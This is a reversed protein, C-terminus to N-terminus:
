LKDASVISRGTTRGARRDNKQEGLAKRAARVQRNWTDFAPLTYDTLEGQDGGDDPFGNEKLWDYAERDELKKSAIREAYVFSSYAKRVAPQLSKHITEGDAPNFTNPPKGEGDAPQNNADATQAQGAEKTLSPKQGDNPREPHYDIRAAGRPCAEKIIEALRYACGEGDLRELEAVLKTRENPGGWLVGALHDRLQEENIGPVDIWRVLNSVAVDFPTFPEEGDLAEIKAKEWNAGEWERQAVAWRVQTEVEDTSCQQRDTLEANAALSKELESKFEEHRHIEPLLAEVGAKDETTVGSYWFEEQNAHDATLNGLYEVLLNSSRSDPM